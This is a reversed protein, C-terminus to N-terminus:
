RKSGSKATKLVPLGPSDQFTSRHSGTEGSSSAESRSGELDARSLDVTLQYVAQLLERDTYPKKLIGCFGHERFNSMVPDESYGSSVIARIQPDFAKLRKMTEWGGMGGGIVLDMIVGTFPEGAKKAEKYIKLATQGDPVAVVSYGYKGLLATVVERLGAEDEMVLIRGGETLIITQDKAPQVTVSKMSAPLYIQVRTGRGPESELVICGNHRKIISYATTLGLGTGQPKTTFYPDFAKRLDADSIGVGTDQFTIRVYNGADLPLAPEEELALNTLDITLTGGEPMAQVANIVLNNFVQNLQGADADVPWLDHSATLRYQVASGHLSMNVSETVLKTLIITAKVPAGGKAFTLLQQTLERARNIAQEAKVLKPYANDQPKLFLKALSINGWIISLINNFDHALGGALIGVSELKNAKIIEEEMKKRATIDRTIMVTRVEGNPAIYPKGISEYWACEGKQNQFRYVARGSSFTKFSRKFVERAQPLDDPHVGTFINRGLLEDPDFGYIEKYNPSAYLYQGDASTECILDITNEALARYRAESERLGAIATQLLQEQRKLFQEQQAREAIEHRLQENSETLLQTRESVLKELQNRHRNLDDIANKYATIDRIILMEGIAQKNYRIPVKSLSVLKTPQCSPTTEFDTFEETFRYHDIYRDMTGPAPPTTFGLLEAAAQNFQVIEQRNNYIIVGDQVKAFLDAAIDEIGISLFNYRVVAWFVLVSLIVGATSALPLFDPRNFFNPMIVDTFFGLVLAAFAGYMILRLQSKILQDHIIRYRNLILYLAYFGPGGVVGLTVPLYLPGPYQNPGWYFKQCGYGVLDTTASLIVAAITLLAMGHYIWDNEIHLLAYTFNLLLFGLPLWVAANYRLLLLMWREDLPLWLILNLFMWLSIVGSFSLYARNVPNKRNQALIYTWTFNNVLLAVM